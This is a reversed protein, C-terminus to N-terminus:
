QARSQGGTLAELFAADRDEGGALDSPPQGIVEKYYEKESPSMIMYNALLTDNLDREVDAIRSMKTPVEDGYQPMQSLVQDYSVDSYAAGSKATITSMALKHMTQNFREATSYWPAYKQVAGWPAGLDDKSKGSMLIKAHAITNRAALANAMKTRMDASEFGKANNAGRSADIRAQATMKKINLAYIQMEATFKSTHLRTERDAARSELQARMQGIKAVDLLGAFKTEIKNLENSFMRDAQGRMLNEVSRADKHEGLLMQYVSAKRGVMYQLKGLETRQAAIDRAVAKDIIKFATNEGGTLSAGFTGLAVALASGIATGTNKYIRKPDIEFNTVMGEARDIAQRTDELSDQRIKEMDLVAQREDVLARARNDAAVALAANKAASVKAQKEISDSEANLAAQGRKDAGTIGRKYRDLFGQDGTLAAALLREEENDAANAIGPELTADYKTKKAHKAIAVKKAQIDESETIADAYPTALESLPEKSSTQGRGEVYLEDYAGENDAAVRRMNATKKQLNGLRLNRDANAYHDERDSQIAKFGQYLPNSFGASELGPIEIPPTREIVKREKKNSTPATM